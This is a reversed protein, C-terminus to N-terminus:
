TNDLTDAYCQNSPRNCFCKSGCDSGDSCQLGHCNPASQASAGIQGASVLCTVVLAAFMVVELMKTSVRKM